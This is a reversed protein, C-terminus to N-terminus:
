AERRFHPMPYTKDIPALAAVLRSTAETLSAPMKGVLRRGAPQKTFDAKGRKAVWKEFAEVSWGAELVSKLEPLCEEPPQGSRKFDQLREDTREEVDFGLSFLTLLRDPNHDQDRIQQDHRRAAERVAHLMAWQWTHPLLREFLDQGGFESILDSRWWGLRREDEGGSEGAWGVILQAALLDDIQEVSLSSKPLICSTVVDQNM